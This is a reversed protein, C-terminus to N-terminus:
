ALANMLEDIIFVAVVFGQTQRIREETTAPAFEPYYVPMAAVVGTKVKGHYPLRVPESVEAAGVQHTRLLLNQMAPQSALDYGLAVQNGALPEIFLLPFYEPHEPAPTPREGPQHTLDGEVIQFGPLGEQRAAREFAKREANPVRPAWGIGQMGDMRIALDQVANTFLQRGLKPNQFFLARLTRLLDESGNRHEQLVGM